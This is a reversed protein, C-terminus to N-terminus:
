RGKYQVHNAQHHWVISSCEVGSWKIEISNDDEPILKIIIGDKGTASILKDGIQLDSFNIESLIKPKMWDPLPCWLTPQPTMLIFGQTMPDLFAAGDPECHIFGGYWRAVGCNTLIEINKPATEISQPIM